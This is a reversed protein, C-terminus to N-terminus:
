RLYKHQDIYMARAQPSVPSEGLAVSTPFSDFNPLRVYALCRALDLPPKKIAIEFGAAASLGTFASASL